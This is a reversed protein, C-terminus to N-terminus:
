FSYALFAAFSTYNKDQTIPSDAADGPLRGLLAQGSIRWHPYPDYTAAVFVRAGSFGSDTAYIPLGSRRSQREDVGFFTRLYQSNAWSAAAGGRLRLRPTFAHSAALELDATSGHGQGGIDSAVTLTSTLWALSRVFRVKAQATESVSGIGRLPVVDAEDRHILDAGVSLSLSRDARRSLYVGFGDSTRLFWRNAYTIDILPLRRVETSDSGPYKPQTYAGAGVTFRWVEDQVDRGTAAFGVFPFLIGLAMCAMGPLRRILRKM